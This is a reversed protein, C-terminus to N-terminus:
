RQSQESDDLSCLAVDKNIRHVNSLQAEMFEAGSDGNYWLNSSVLSCLTDVLCQM